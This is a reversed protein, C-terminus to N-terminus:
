PILKLISRAHNHLDQLVETSSQSKIQNNALTATEFALDSDVIQSTASSLLEYTAESTSLASLLRNTEAGVQALNENNQQVYFDIFDRRQYAREFNLWQIM